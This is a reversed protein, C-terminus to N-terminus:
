ELICSQGNGVEVLSPRELKTTITEDTAAQAEEELAWDLTRKVDNVNLLRMVLGQYILQGDSTPIWYKAGGMKRYLELGSKVGLALKQGATYGEKLPNMIALKKTRPESDLFAQLPEADILTGHPTQFIAEHTEVGGSNRHTWVIALCYNLERNTPLRIPRIWAPLPEGPHLEPSQWSTASVPFNHILKITTFHNYGKVINVVEASGIFPIAKHFMRLTEEHLHDSYHFGVLLADIGGTYKDGEPKPPESSQNPRGAAANEIETILTEIQDVTSIAAPAGLKIYIIWTSLMSAPGALWPEFVVHYFIKGTKGREDRPRPFSMLWTNDGNLSTFIPRDEAGAAFRDRLTSHLAPIDM